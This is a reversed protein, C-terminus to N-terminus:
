SVHADNTHVTSFVLHGTLASQMAISATEKDRIEGLMIVDPDQRVISRLGAAFDFGIDPQVQVQNVGELQYEVPDELTIIKVGPKNLLTLIAYLTTSKGSGTPSLLLRRKDLICQYVAEVQYERISENNPLNLNLSDIFKKVIEITISPNAATGSNDIVTYNNVEAFHKVYHLLGVYLEKTFVSFLHLKGDWKKARFLPHFRADPVDFCFYSHLEQAISPDTQIRIYVDDKKSIVIENM